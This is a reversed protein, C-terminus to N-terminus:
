QYVKVNQDIKLIFKDKIPCQEFIYKLNPLHKHMHLCLSCITWKDQFVLIM